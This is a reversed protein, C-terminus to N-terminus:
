YKLAEMEVQNLEKINSVEEKIFSGFKDRSIGLKQNLLEFYNEETRGAQLSEFLGVMGEEEFIIKMVLGGIAYRFDTMYEGNPINTQLDSLNNIEFDPNKALFNKLKQLHWDLEYGTSGGLFAAIGEDVWPHYQRNFGNYTYLHVVEHPYYESNNGAYIITNYNDAMGGSPVPQYSYTFFDYGLIKSLDNTNNAVFYDFQIPETNFKKAIKINFENMKKAATEDFNHEPHIIYNISGIKRNEYIEKHYQASNILLFQDEIKKAYVSAIYGLHVQGTSDVKSFMSKLLFFDKEVPVIGIINCQVNKNNQIATRLDLLLSIYSYDPREMEDYHWFPSASRVYEDSLLYDKWLEIISKAYGESENQVNENIHFTIHNETPEQSLCSSQWTM